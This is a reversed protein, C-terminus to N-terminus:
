EQARLNRLSFVDDSVDVDFDVVIYRIETKQGKKNQPVMEMVAPITRDGFTTIEKFNMVRMLRDKEDYYEQRVPLHDARRVAIVINKWVVALDEHPICDIYILDPDPNDVTTEHYSYDEYLSFERVLDDNNFDSGMWSSMMMSPPVKIVKNTKPLYNWMENDMRLTAVGREKRPSTIRIFTKDMGRSWAKMALTREWHPTIIHMELESYSSKSRYLKDIDKIITQIDAATAATQPRAGQPLASTLLVMLGIMWVKTFMTIEIRRRISESMSLPEM